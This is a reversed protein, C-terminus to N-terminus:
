FDENSLRSEYKKCVRQYYSIIGKKEEIEMFIKFNQIKQCFTFM